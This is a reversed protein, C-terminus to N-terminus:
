PDVVEVQRDVVRGTYRDIAVHLWYRREGDVLFDGLGRAAAPYRGSQAVLDVLLNWTRTNAPEALARIAAEREGKAGSPSLAAVAANTMLRGVLDARNLFPQQAALNTVATGLASAASASVATGALPNQAAGALLAAVVQPYPTNPSVRGAAVPTDSLTFLDLLGADASAASFFDLTKWPADRFAYGLEGVSRFPRGLVIPRAAAAGAFFPSTGPYADLADGPRVAGDNDAYFNAALPSLYAGAVSSLSLSPSNVAWLDLRYPGNGALGYFPATAQNIQSNLTSGSPNLSKTPDTPFFTAGGPSNGPGFRSTRPDSKLYAVGNGPTTANNGMGFFDGRWLGSASDVMGVFTSYPYYNAGDLSWDLEFTATFTFKFNINKRAAVDAAWTADSPFATPFPALDWGGTAPSLKSCTTSPAQAATIPGPERFDGYAATFGLPAQPWANTSATGATNWSAGSTWSWRDTGGSGSAVLGVTYADPRTGPLARIRFRTPSVAPAAPAAQHPNWLQFFYAPTALSTKGSTVSAPALQFFLAGLYPLDKIGYFACGNYLATTPCNAQTAQDIINLGIRIIQYDPRADPDSWGTPYFSGSGNVGQYDIRANGRGLSGRLIGAQLLEFFDPERGPNLGAVQDLTLIRTASTGGGAPNTYIWKRYYGTSSRDPVLGFYKLIQAQQSAPLAAVNQQDLLALRDLPFRTKVLPEGVLARTGDNRVFSRQVRPNLFLPNYAGTGAAQSQYNYAGGLNTTPGWTPGNVERSFTTLYPLAPLLHPNSQQAYAILEQRGVFTTDGQAVQMFGNTAWNAVYAAYSPATQRNRWAVLANVDNQSLGPVLQTLDAWPLLGKGAAAAAVAAGNTYGAVNVDILGGLDYVAYAYRGLVYDSNGAPSSALGPSWALAKPGERTVLVWQPVPFGATTAALRPKNWRDLSVTRGNLSAGTTPSASAPSSSGPYANTGSVILLTPCPGSVMRRPVADANTLPVYLTNTGSGNASSFAPSAAEARMQGVVQDLGSLAIQDALISRTYSQTAVRDRSALSVFAVLAVTILSLLALTSLLAVGRARAPFDPSPRM